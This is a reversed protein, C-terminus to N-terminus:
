RFLWLSSLLLFMAAITWGQYVREACGMSQADGCSSGAPLKADAIPSPRM